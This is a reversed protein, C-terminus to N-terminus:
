RLIEDLKDVASLIESVSQFGTLVTKGSSFLLVVANTDIRYVLGPFQEPEYEINELGLQIALQDLDLDFTLNYTCVINNILINKPNISIDLGIDMFERSISKSAHIIADTTKGGAFLLKGTRTIIVTPHENSRFVLSPYSEPNYASGEIQSHLYSLDLEIDIDIMAAINQIQVESNTLRELNLDDIYTM